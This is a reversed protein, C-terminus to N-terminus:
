RRAPQEQNLAQSINKNLPFHCAVYHGEGDNQLKPVNQKCVSQAYPCRTHFKCGSPQNAPNPLEGELIIRDTKQHPNMVPIASLLAETYPHKMNDFLADKTAIEVIEGMYMVAIRDSIHKVTPLGHAIFIYTLNYKKQLTKLLNLIQAQVSVDLASVPEDCVILKPKLALARAIGIRQRQGGSFEHPFRDLHQKGLGVEELLNLVDEKLKKGSAMGHVILPEAVIDFVKMRPNLSSFPDQFIIQLDKRVVRREHENLRSLDRGDFWIDGSTQELLEAIMLGTTTKGCGSEGVVGFTEGAKVEFSVGDVAKFFQDKKKLFGKKIPFHKKLASVKLIPVGDQHNESM